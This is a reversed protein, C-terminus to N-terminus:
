SYRVSRVDDVTTLTGRMEAIWVRSIELDITPSALQGSRTNASGKGGTTKANCGRLRSSVGMQCECM